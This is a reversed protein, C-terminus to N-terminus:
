ECRNMGDRGCGLRGRSLVLREASHRCSWRHGRFTRVSDVPWCEPIGSVGEGGFYLLETWISESGTPKDKWGDLTLGLNCRNFHSHILAYHQFQLKLVAKRQRPRLGRPGHNRLSLALQDQYLMLIIYRCDQLYSAYIAACIDNVFDLGLFSIFAMYKWTNPKYPSYQNQHPKFFFSIFLLLVIGVSNLTFWCGLLWNLEFTLGKSWLLIFVNCSNNNRLLQDFRKWCLQM